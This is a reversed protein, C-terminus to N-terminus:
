KSRDNLRSYFIKIVRWVYECVREDFQKSVRVPKEPPSSSSADESLIAGANSAGASLERVLVNEPTPRELKGSPKKPEGGGGGGGGDDDYDDVDVSTGNKDDQLLLCSSSKDVSSELVVRQPQQPAAPNDLVPECKPTNTTPPPAVPPNHIVIPNSFSFPSLEGFITPIVTAIAEAHTLILIMSM